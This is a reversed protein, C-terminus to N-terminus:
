RRYRMGERKREWIRKRMGDRECVIVWECLSEIVRLSEFTCSMCATAYHWVHVRKSVWRVLLPPVDM